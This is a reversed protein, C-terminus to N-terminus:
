AVEAAAPSPVSIVASSARRSYRGLLWQVPLEFGHYVLIAMAAAMQFYLVARSRPDIEGPFLRNLAVFVLGHVMFFAFSIEGLYRPGSTSLLASIYGNQCAFIFITMAVVVTYYGNARVLFPFAYGQYVFTAVLVVSGVELVTWALKLLVTTVPRSRLGSRVFVLGLIVGVLFEGLRVLPCIAVAYVAWPQPNVTLYIALSLPLLWCPLVLWMLGSWGVRSRSLMCIVFPLCLYFFMEISLTWSVSNYM